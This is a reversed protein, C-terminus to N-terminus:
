DLLGPIRDNVFRRVLDVHIGTPVMSTVALMTDVDWIVVPRLWEGQLPKSDLENFDGAVSNHVRVIEGDLNVIPSGSTGPGLDVADDQMTQDIPESYNTPSSAADVYSVKGAWIVWELTHPNGVGVATEGLEVGDALELWPLNEAEVKLLALDPSNAPYTNAIVEASYQRGDFLKVDLATHERINHANTIIYGDPTIFSGTGGFYGESAGGLNQILKVVAPQILQGISLALARETESVTRPNAAGLLSELYAIQRDVSNEGAVEMLFPVNEILCPRCLATPLSAVTLESQRTVALNREAYNREVLGPVHESLFGRLTDVGVGKKEDVLLSRYPPGDWVVQNQLVSSLAEPDPISTSGGYNIAVMEGSCNLIASGSTGGETPIALVVESWSGMNNLATLTGAAAVWYVGQPHGVYVITSGVALEQALPLFPLDNGDVKVLALDPDLAEVTAVVTGEFIQGDFTVVQVSQSSSVVHANTVLYGDPSIFSGTGMGLDHSIHVVAHRARRAIERVRNRDAVPISPGALDDLDSVLAAVAPPLQTPDADLPYDAPCPDSPEFTTTAPAQTTTTTTAPAQTTTTTTAPAQTTTTTTAPAQTPTTTTAPAQTTTTTTPAPASTTSTTTASTTPAVTTTAEELKEELAAVQDKLEALEESDGACSAALLSVAV